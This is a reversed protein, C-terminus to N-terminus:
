SDNPHLGATQTDRELRQNAQGDIAAGSRQSGAIPVHGILAPLPSVGRGVDGLSLDGGVGQSVLGIVRNYKENNRQKRQEAKSNGNLSEGFDKAAKPNDQARALWSHIFAKVGSRTKRRKPKGDCWGVMKRLEQMVDVAPYLEKWKRFDEETVAFEDGSNLPLLMVANVVQESSAESRVPKPEKEKKIEIKKKNKHSEQVDVQHNTLVLFEHALLTDIAHRIHPRDTPLAYMTRAIYTADNPVNKGLRGRLRRIGQLVQRQFLTLRCINEDIDQETYDKIWKSAYSSQYKEWNKIALYEAM